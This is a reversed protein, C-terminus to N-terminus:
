DRIDNAVWTAPDGPNKCFAWVRFGYKPDSPHPNAYQIVQDWADVLPVPPNPYTSGPTGQLWDSKFQVFADGKTPTKLGGTSTKGQPNVWERGLLHHLNQSGAYPASASPYGGFEMKYTDCGKTLTDIIAKSKAYRARDIVHKILVGLLAALILIICIVVLMEILTFGARLKKM